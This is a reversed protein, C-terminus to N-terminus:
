VYYKGANEIYEDKENKDAKRASFIRILEM